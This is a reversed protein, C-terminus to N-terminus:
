FGPRSPVPEPSPERSHPPWHNQVHQSLSKYFVAWSLMPSPENWVAPTDPPPPQTAVYWGADYLGTEVIREIFAAARDIYTAGTFADDPAYFTPQLTPTSRSEEDEGILFVYGLWPRSSIVNSTIAANVDTANGLGEEFRNNQNNGYSGTMSKLELLVMLQGNPDTAALDWNKSARYYGPIRTGRGGRHIHAAPVNLATLGDIILARIADLHKAALVQNRIGGQATNTITRAQYLRTGWFADIATQINTQWLNGTTM